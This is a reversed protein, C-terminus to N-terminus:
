LRPDGDGPAAIRLRRRQHAVVAYVVLDFVLGSVATFQDVTFNFPQTVLIDLVVAAQMWEYGGDRDRRIRIAAAIAILSVVASSAALAITAGLEPVEDRTTPGALIVGLGALFILAVVAQLIFCGVIIVVFWRRDLLWALRRRLGARANRLFQPTPDAREPVAQVLQRLATHVADDHQGLLQSAAERELPTLGTIVGRIGTYAANAMREADTLPRSIRSKRAVVVLVAFAVYILAAAPKFFYDNTQTVFKGIEDIFLGFGIGGLLSAWIRPTRGVYMLVLILAVVMLLGGWLMHAIHLGHGGVQPYGSLALFARTLLVTSIGTVAFLQLNDAGDVLRVLGTRRGAM